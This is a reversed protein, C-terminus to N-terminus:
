KKGQGRAASIAAAREPSDLMERRRLQWYNPDFEGNDLANLLQKTAAVAAAVNQEASRTIEAVAAEGDSKTRAHTVLGVALAQEADFREGLVLLQTLAHRPLLAHMRAVAVPNYLLGLRTAPVQFYAHESAIRLDCALMIDVAGGICPGNISAIVPMEADRIAAVVAAIADDMATDRSTGTLESLDAGASFTNGEGTIIVASAGALSQASLADRLAALLKLSLANRCEPRDLSIYVVDDKREVRIM